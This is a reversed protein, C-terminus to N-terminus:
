LSKKTANISRYLGLRILVQHMQEYEFRLSKLYRTGASNMRFQHTAHTSKPQRVERVTVCQKAYLRKMVNHVSGPNYVMGYAEELIRAIDRAGAPQQELVSLFLLDMDTRASQYKM